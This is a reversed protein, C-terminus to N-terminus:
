RCDKLVQLFETATPRSDPDKGWCKQILAVHGPKVGAIRRVVDVSPRKNETCVQIIFVAINGFNFENLTVQGSFIEWMIIGLAYIDIKRGSLNDTMMEPAMWLSTGKIEITRATASGVLKGIGLDILVPDMSPLQLLENPSKMDRHVIGHSHVHESGMAIGRLVHVDKDVKLAGHKKLYDMLDGGRVLRMVMCPKPKEFFDLVEMVNAHGSAKFLSILEVKCDDRDDENRFIKLAVEVRSNDSSVRVGEYVDAQGSNEVTKKIAYLKGNNYHPLQSNTQNPTVHIRPSPPQSPSSPSPTSPPTPSTRTLGLCDACQPGNSPGCRGGSGPINAM